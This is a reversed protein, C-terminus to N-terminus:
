SLSGFDLGGLADGVLGLLKTVVPLLDLTITLM